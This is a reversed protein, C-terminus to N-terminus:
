RSKVPLGRRADEEELGKLAAGFLAWAEAHDRAWAGDERGRQAWAESVEPTWREAGAAPAEAAAAAARAENAALAADEAAAGEAAGPLATSGGGGGGGGSSSGDGGDGDGSSSSSSSGQDADSHAGRPRDSPATGYLAMTGLATLAPAHDLSSAASSYARWAELQAREGVADADAQAKDDDGGEDDNGGEDDDGGEGGEHDGDDDGDEEDKQKYGRAGRKDAAASSSSSSSSSGSSSRRRRQGDIGGRGSAAGRAGGGSGHSGGGSSSSSSSSGRSGSSSGRSGSSATAAAPAASAPPLGLDRRVVADLQGSQYLDGLLTLAQPTAARTLHRRAAAYDPVGPGRPSATPSPHGWGNAAFIGLAEDAEPVLGTAAAAAFYKRAAVLDV